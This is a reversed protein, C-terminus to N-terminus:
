TFAGVSNVVLIGTDSVFMDLETPTISKSGSNVSSSAISKNDIPQMQSVPRKLLSPVTGTTVSPIASPKITGVPSATTASTASTNTNLRNTEQRVFDQVNVNGKSDVAAGELIYSLAMKNALIQHIDAFSRPVNGKDYFITPNAKAAKPLLTAAKAAPNNQLGAMFKKVDTQGLFYTLYGLAPDSNQIGMDKMAYAAVVANKAPDLSATTFNSYDKGLNYKKVISDWLGDYMKGNQDKSRSNTLQFVGRAKSLPNTQTKGFGSEEKAIGLMLAPNVGAQQAASTIDGYLKQSLADGSKLHTKGTSYAFGNVGSYLDNRGIDSAYDQAINRVTGINANRLVQAERASGIYGQSKKVVTDDGDELHLFKAMKHFFKDMSDFGDTVWDQISKGGVKIGALWKGIRLGLTGALLVGLAPLMIDSVLSSLIGGIGANKLWGVSSGLMTDNGNEDKMKSAFWDSSKTIFKSISSNTWASSWADSMNSKLGTFFKGTGSLFGLTLNQITKNIRKDIGFFKMVGIGLPGGFVGGLLLTMYRATQGSRVALKDQDAFKKEIETAYIDAAEKIRDHKIVAGQNLKLTGKSLGLRQELEEIASNPVSSLGLGGRTLAKRSEKAQAESNGTSWGALNSAGAMLNEMLDKTDFSKKDSGSGLIVKHKGQALLKAMDQAMVRMAQRNVEVTKELAALEQASQLKFVELVQKQRNSVRRTVKPQMYGYDDDDDLGFYMSQKIKEGAKEKLGKAKKLLDNTIKRNIDDQRKMFAKLMASMDDLSGTNEIPPTKAM